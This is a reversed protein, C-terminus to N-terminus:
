YADENDDQGARGHRVAEPQQSPDKVGDTVLQTEVSTRHRFYQRLSGIGATRRILGRGVALRFRRPEMDLRFAELLEAAPSWAGNSKVKADFIM